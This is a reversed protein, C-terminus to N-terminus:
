PSAEFDLELLQRLAKALHRYPSGAKELCQSFKDLWPKMFRLYFDRRMTRRGLDDVTRTASLFELMASLYDPLEKKVDFEFGFARYYTLIQHMYWGREKNDEGLTHYGGYPPCRPALEFMEVRHGELDLAVAEKFFEAFGDVGLSEALSVIEDALKVAEAPKDFLRALAIYLLGIEDIHSLNM